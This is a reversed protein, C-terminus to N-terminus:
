EFPLSETFQHKSFDMGTYVGHYTPPLLEAMRVMMETMAAERIERSPPNPINVLRFPRGVRIHFPTRRFRKFNPWFSEGGFHVVPMLPAQSKLALLLTGPRAPLLQGTKSRTGEPAIAIIKGSDLALIAKQMATLDVEGRRIPIMEWLKFLPGLLPNKWTEEKAIGLIPKPFTHSVLVPVELFNIHNSIIILPGRDPIRVLEDGDVNCTIQFIGRVIANVFSKTSSM